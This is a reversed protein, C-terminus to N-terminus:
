DNLKNELWNKRLLGYCYVDFYTDNKFQECRLTGELDFGLLTHIRQSAINYSIVKGTVKNANLKTFALKLALNLLRKGSGKQAFPSRYFGWEMNPNLQNGSLDFQIFGVIENGNDMVFLRKLPNNKQRLYWNKHEQATIKNDSFMWRNVDPHNRWARVKELDKEALRRLKM